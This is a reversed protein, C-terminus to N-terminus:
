FRRTRRGQAELKRMTEALEAEREARWEERKDHCRDIEGVADQALRKFVKSAECDSDFTVVPIGQDSAESLRRDLPISVLTKYRSMPDDEDSAHSSRVFPENLHGCKECAFMTMNEVIGAVPIQHKEFM